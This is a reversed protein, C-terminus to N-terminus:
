VLHRPPHRDYREALRQLFTLWADENLRDEAKPEEPLRLGSDNYRYDSEAWYCPTGSDVYCAELKSSAYGEGRLNSGLRLRKGIM